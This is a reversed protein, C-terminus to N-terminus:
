CNTRQKFKEIIRRGNCRNLDANHKLDALKVRKALENTKIRKVYDLYDIGRQHTLLILASIIAQPFGQEELYKFTYKDGHDEIIDHLLAVCASEEDNFQM